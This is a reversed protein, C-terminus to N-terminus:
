GSPNLGSAATIRWPSTTRPDSSHVLGLGEIGLHFVMYHLIDAGAQPKWARADGGLVLQDFTEADAAHGGVPCEAVQRGITIKGANGADAGEHLLRWRAGTEHFQAVDGLLDFRAAV